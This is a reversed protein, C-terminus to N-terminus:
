HQALQNCTSSVTAIISFIGAMPVTQTAGSGLTRRDSWIQAAAAKTCCPITLVVYCGSTLDRLLLARKIAAPITRTKRGVSLPEGQADVHAVVVGADCCFRRATFLAIVEGDTMMALDAPESSGHLGDHPVAIIIKVPTRQPRNGRMRDQVIDM